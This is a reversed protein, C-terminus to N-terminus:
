CALWLPPQESFVVVSHRMRSSLSRALKRKLDGYRRAKAPHSRLYERFAIRERHRQSGEVIVYLHHRREGIPWLPAVLDTPLGDQREAHRYGITELRVLAAQVDHGSRVIVDIDIVPKAALGPVATSGVHEITLAVDGLAALARDRLGEFM